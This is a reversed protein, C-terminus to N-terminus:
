WITFEERVESHETRLAYPLKHNEVKNHYHLTTQASSIYYTILMAMVRDDHKNGSAKIKIADSRLSEEYIFSEMEVLTGYDKINKYNNDRCISVALDKMIPKTISTTKVGYRQINNEYTMEEGNSRIYLNPYNCKKLLSTMTTSRNNEIGLLAENYYIGLCYLQLTFSDIDMSNSAMIAVQHKNDNRIVFAVSSDNGSGEATDVGIVYPVGEQVEEFIKIFGMDSKIVKIDSVEFDTISNNIAKTEYEFYVEEKKINRVEDKRTGIINNDFVGNGSTAFADSPCCPYEQKLITENKGYEYYKERYFAMQELDLNYKAQIIKERPTLIFDRPVKRRYSEEVDKLGHFNDHVSPVSSLVASLLVKLNPMRSCESLHLFQVTSGVVANETSPAVRISCENKKTYIINGAQNKLEPALLPEHEKLKDYYHRYKRFIHSANDSTNAIVVSSQNKQFLTFITNLASIFTTFGLQRSKLIIYLCREENLLRQCIDRYLEEQATNMKLTQDNGKKDIIWMAKELLKRVSLWTNEAVAIEIDEASVRINNKIQKM